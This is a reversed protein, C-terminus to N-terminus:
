VKGLESMLEKAKKYSVIFRKEFPGLAVDTKIYRRNDEGEDVVVTRYWLKYEYHYHGYNADYVMITSFPRRGNELLSMTRDKGVTLHVCFPRGNMDPQFFIYGRFEDGKVPNERPIEDAMKGILFMPYPVFTYSENMLEMSLFFTDKDGFLLQYYIKQRQNMYATVSLSRWKQSKNVFFMGSEMSVGTIPESRNMMAWIPNKADLRYPDRFFLTGTETQEMLCRPQLVPFADGDFWIISELESAVVAIM